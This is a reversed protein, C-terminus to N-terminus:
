CSVTCVASMSNRFVQMNLLCFFLLCYKNFLLLCTLCFLGSQSSVLMVHFTTYFFGGLSLEKLVIRYFFAKLFYHWLRTAYNYSSFTFCFNLSLCAYIESAMFKWECVLKGLCNPICKAFLLVHRDRGVSGELVGIGNELCLM